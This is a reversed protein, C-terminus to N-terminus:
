RTYLVDDNEIILYHRDVAVKTFSQTLGSPWHLQLEDVRECAGLGIDITSENAGMYGGATMWAHYKQQGCIAVVEAGIADRESTTGSLDIRLWHGTDTRNELVAIPADLSNAVLDPKGDRNFDLRVLTRGLTPTTWFSTSADHDLEDAPEVLQFRGASGQFLQPLMQFPIEPTGNEVPNFVHGNLVTLDLWGDRDFDVAQIGFGVTDRSPQALGFGAAADIFFGPVRQLFLNSPQQWYNTVCLDLTGNHDFDGGAVGMCGQPQAVDGVACGRLEAQNSLSFGHQDEAERSVWFHNNTTDNTIFLDNGAQRDFNAVLGAFGYNPKLEEPKVNQFLSWVGQHNQKLLRDMGGHFIRPTCDFGAGWCETKFASDDNIYNIEVIEPIADGDLDGCVCGSTWGQSGLIERRAFTGDGNNLYLTNEGINAVIIDPFGDQNLDAATAGASYSRDDTTSERSIETTKKGALNRYLRNPNSDTQNNPQGGADSFYLDVWGDLDYDLAAIGGGNVQFMKLHSLNPERNNHYRFDIGIESAIDVLVINRPATQTLSFPSTASHPEALWEGIPLPWRSKDVGCLIENEPAPSSENEALSARAQILAPMAQELQGSEHALVMRWSIAEWPRGLQDLKEALSQMDMLRSERHLGINLALQWAEELLEKRAAVRRAANFEDVAALAESLRQYSVRDTPDHIVAESFARIAPEFQGSRLMWSGMTAWYEAEENVGPPLALCWRRLAADDQRSEYLRGALAAVPASQPFEARLRQILDEAENLNNQVVFRKARALAFMTISDFEDTSVAWESAEDHYPVSLTTLSLLEKETVDGLRILARTHKSADVRRGQANLLDALRRHVPVLDGYIELMKRFMTEAAAIQNAELLWDAAQGMAPFGAEPHDPPILGLSEIAESLKGQGHASRAALFLLTANNPEASLMSRIAIDAKTHEGQKILRSLESITLQPTATSSMAPGTPTPQPKAERLKEHDPPRIASHDTPQSCATVAVLMVAALLRIGWNIKPPITKAYFM